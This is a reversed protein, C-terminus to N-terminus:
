NTLTLYIAPENFIFSSGDKNSKKNWKEESFVFQAMKEVRNYFINPNYSRQIQTGDFNKKEYQNGKIHLKEFGVFIGTVPIELNLHVMSFTTKRTGKKVTVICDRDLMEKNPLGNADVSYFHIKFTAKDIKNATHFTVNKIYNIKKYTPLYPFFKVELKSGNEFAQLYKDKTLGIQLTKTKPNNSVSVEQLEYVIPKLFIETNNKALISKKQYGVSTISIKSKAHFNPMTFEGNENTVLSEKTNELYITALPIVENTLSDKVIGKIQAFITLNVLFLLVLFIYQKMM